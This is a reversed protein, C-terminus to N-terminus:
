GMVVKHSKCGKHTVRGLLRIKEDSCRLHTEFLDPGRGGRRPPDNSLSVPKTEFLDPGRGERRPPDNLPSVALRKRKPFSSSGCIFVFLCSYPHLEKLSSRRGFAEASNHRQDTDDDGGLLQNLGPRAEAPRPQRPSGVDHSFAGRSRPRGARVFRPIAEGMEEVRISRCRRWPEAEAPGLRNGGAPPAPQPMAPFSLPLGLSLM